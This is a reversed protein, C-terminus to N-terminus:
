ISFSNERNDSKRKDQLPSSASFTEIGILSNALLVRSDLHEFYLGTYLSLNKPPDLWSGYCSSM